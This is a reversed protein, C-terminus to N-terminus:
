KIVESLIPTKYLFKDPSGPLLLSDVHAIRFTVAKRTRQQEDKNTNVGHLACGGNFVFASNAVPQYLFPPDSDVWFEGGYSVENLYITISYQNVDDMPANYIATDTDYHYTLLQDYILVNILGRTPIWENSPYQNFPPFTKIKEFLQIIRPHVTTALQRNSWDCITEPTQYQWEPSATLDFIVRDYHTNFTRQNATAHARGKFYYVTKDWDLAHGHFQDWFKTLAEFEVPSLVNEILYGTQKEGRIDFRPIVNLEIPTFSPSM